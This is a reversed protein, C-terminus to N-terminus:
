VSMLKILVIIGSYDGTVSTITIKTILVCSYIVRVNTWNIIVIDPYFAWHQHTYHVYKTLKRKRM